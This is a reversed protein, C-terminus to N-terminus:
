DTNKGHDPAWRSRGEKGVRREESRTGAAFGVVGRPGSAMLSELAPMSGVRCRSLSARLSSTSYRPVPLFMKEAWDAGAFISVGTAPARGPEDTTFAAGATGSFGLGGAM